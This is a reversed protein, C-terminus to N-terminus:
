PLSSATSEVLEADKIEEATSDILGMRELKKIGAEYDHQTIQTPRQRLIQAKDTLIAAVTASNRAAGPADRAALDGVTERAKELQMETVELAAHVVKDMRQAKKEELEPALRTQVEAWQDPYKSRWKGLTVDNLGVLEGAAELDRIAQRCNDGALVLATLAVDRDEKTYRRQRADM